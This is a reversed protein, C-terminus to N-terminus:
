KSRKRLRSLLLGVAGLGALMMGANARRDRHTVACGFSEKGSGTNANSRAIAEDRPATGIANCGDYVTCSPQNIERTVQRAPALESQDKSAELVLDRDLASHVLSSHTRTIRVNNGIGALLAAQDEDQVQQKTKGGDEAEYDNQGNSCQVPTSVAPGGAGTPYGGGGGYSGVYPACYGNTLYGVMQDHPFGVSSELEWARGGAAAFRQTRLTSINSSNTTWDWELEEAKIVFSPFNQPEYRGDAVTFLTIGVNAGTGASVMRLPLVASAGTSTVRVPRMAQVGAGPVLKLALFDFHEAVYQDVIPKVDAPIAYGHSTLWTELANPDSAHLQVTEYPGVTEEHTVTVGGPDRPSAQAGTAEDEGGFGSNCDQPYPPCNLPPPVVTIQTMAELTSFLGDSSVGLKVSGSIPLVWAFSEPEGSYRLEDYLTTQGQSISLIMRHDTVVSPPRPAPPPPPPQQFCGGCAQANREGVAVFTAGAAIVALLWRGRMDYRRGLSMKVLVERAM